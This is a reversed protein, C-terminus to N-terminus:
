TDPPTDPQKLLEATRNNRELWAAFAENVALPILVLCYEDSGEDVAYLFFGYSTVEQGLALIQAEVDEGAQNDALEDFTDYFLFGHENGLEERMTFLTEEATAKWDVRACQEVTKAFWADAGMSRIAEGPAVSVRWHFMERDQRSILIPKRWRPRPTVSIRGTNGLEILHACLEDESLGLQEATSVFHFEGQHKEIHAFVETRAKRDRINKLESRRSLERHMAYAVGLVVCIVALISMAKKRTFM